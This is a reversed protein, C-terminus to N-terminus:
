LRQTKHNRGDYYRFCEEASPFIPWNDPLEIKEAETELEDCRTYLEKLKDEICEIAEWKYDVNYRFEVAEDPMAHVDNLEAELASIEHKISDLAKQVKEM